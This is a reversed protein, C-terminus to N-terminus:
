ILQEKSLIRQRTRRTARIYCFIAVVFATALGGIIVGGGAISKDVKHHAPVEKLHVESGPEHHAATMESHTPGLSGNTHDHASHGSHSKVSENHQSEPAQAALHHHTPPPHAELGPDPENNIGVAESHPRQNIEHHNDDTAKSHYIEPAVFVNNQNHNEGLCSNLFILLVSIIVVYIQYLHLM